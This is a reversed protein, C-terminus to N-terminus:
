KSDARGMQKGGVKKTQNNIGPSNQLRKTQSAKKNLSRKPTIHKGSTSSATNNKLVGQKTGNGGKKERGVNKKQSTINKRGPLAPSRKIKSENKGLSRKLTSKNGLTSTSASKNILAGQKTENNGKKETYVSKNTLTGQKTGKNGKKEPGNKKQATFNNEGLLNTSRSIQSTNKGM